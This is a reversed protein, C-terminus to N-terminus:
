RTTSFEIVGFRTSQRLNVFTPSWAQLPSCRRSHESWILSSSIQEDGDLSWNRETLLAHFTESTLGLQGQAAASTMATPLPGAPRPIDLRYLGLRWRQGPRPPLAARVSNSSPSSAAQFVEWPIRMEVSYGVDAPSSVVSQASSVSELTGDVQVAHSIEHADFRWWGMTPSWPEFDLPAAPVLQLADAVTNAPSLVFEYFLVEDGGDDILVRIGEDNLLGLDDRGVERAWVDSDEIEMFLYLAEPSWLLRAQTAPLTPQGVCDLARPLGTADDVLPGLIAATAWADELGAGDVTIQDDDVLGVTAMPVDEHLTTGASRSYPRIAVGVLLACIALVTVSPARRVPDIVSGVLLLFAPMLPIGEQPLVWHVAKLNTHEDWFPYYPYSGFWSSLTVPDLLLLPLLLVSATLAALYITGSSSTGEEKLRLWSVAPLVGAFAGIGNLFPDSFDLYHTKEELLWVHLGYHQWVEDVLGLCFAIVFALQPRRGRGIAVSLLAGILAYQAFHVLETTYVIIIKWALWALAGCLLWAPLVGVLALVGFRTTRRWLTILAALFLAGLTGALIREGIMFGSQGGEATLSGPERAWEVMVTVIDLGTGHGLSLVAWVALALVLWLRSICLRDVIPPISTTNQM